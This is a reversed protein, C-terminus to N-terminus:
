ELGAAAQRLVALVENKTRGPTDNWSIISNGVEGVILKAVAAVADDYSSDDCLPWNCAIRIGGKACVKGDKQYSGQCWGKEEILAITKLLVEKGTMSRAPFKTM